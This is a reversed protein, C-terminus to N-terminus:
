CNGLRRATLKNQFETIKGGLSASANITGSMSSASFSVEGRSKLEFAGACELTFRFSSGSYSKSTFSCGSAGQTSLSAMLRSPDRADGPTLCQTIQNTGPSLGEAGPVRTELTIEWLGPLLEEASAPVAALAACLAMSFRLNKM